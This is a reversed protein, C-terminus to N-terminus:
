RLIIASDFVNQIEQMPFPPNAGPQPKGDAHRDLNSRMKDQTM